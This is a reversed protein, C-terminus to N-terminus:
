LGTWRSVQICKKNIKRCCSKVKASVFCFNCLLGDATLYWSSSSPPPTEQQQVYFDLHTYLLKFLYISCYVYELSVVLAVSCDSRIWLADAPVKFTLPPYLKSLRSLLQTAKAKIQKTNKEKKCHKIKINKKITLSHLLSIVVEQRIEKNKCTLLCCQPFWKILRFSNIRRKNTRCCFYTKLSSLLCFYFHIKRKM